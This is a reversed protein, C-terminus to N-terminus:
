NRGVAGALRSLIAGFGVLKGAEERMAQDEARRDMRAEARSKHLATELSGLNLRAMQGASLREKIAAEQAALDGDCWVLERAFQFFAGQDEPETIRSFMEGPIQAEEMDQRLVARQEPSFPVHRLYNEMFAWEAGSIVHDAHAMAFVARWMHFRSESIGESM